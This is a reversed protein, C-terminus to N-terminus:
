CSTPINIEESNALNEKSTLYQDLAERILDPVTCGEKDALQKLKEKVTPYVVAKVQATLPVDRGFNSKYKTGFDPNGGVRAM